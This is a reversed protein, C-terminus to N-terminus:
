EEDPRPGSGPPEYESAPLILPPRGAVARMKNLARRVAEQRIIAREVAYKGPFNTIALGILITLIGQGPLVLMLIGALVFIAGLANQAVAVLRWLWPYKRERRAVARRRRVFYDEPLNAVVFPLAMATVVLLLLSATGIRVLLEEHARVFELVAEM